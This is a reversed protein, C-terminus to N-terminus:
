IRVPLFLCISENYVSIVFRYQQFLMWRRPNASGVVPLPQVDSLDGKAKLCLWSIKRKEWTDM